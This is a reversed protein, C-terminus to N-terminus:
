RDTVLFTRSGRREFHVNGTGRAYRRVESTPLDGVELVRARKPGDTRQPPHTSM